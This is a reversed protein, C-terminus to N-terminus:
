RQDISNSKFAAMWSQTPLSMGIPFEVSDREFIPILGGSLAITSLLQKM